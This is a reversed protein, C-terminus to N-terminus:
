ASQSWAKFELTEVGDELSALSGTLNYDIGGFDAVSFRVVRARAANAPARAPAVPGAPNCM